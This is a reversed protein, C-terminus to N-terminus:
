ATEVFEKRKHNQNYFNFNSYNPVYKYICQSIGLRHANYVYSVSIGFDSYSWNYMTKKPFLYLMDLLLWCFKMLILHGRGSPLHYTVLPMMYTLRLTQIQSYKQNPKLAYFSFLLHRKWKENVGALM